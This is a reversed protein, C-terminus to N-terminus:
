TDDPKPAPGFAESFWERLEGPKVPRVNQDREPDLGPNMRRWLERWHAKCYEEVTDAELELRRGVIQYAAAYTEAERSALVEHVQHAAERTRSETGLTTDFRPPTGTMAVTRLYRVAYARAEPSLDEGGDDGALFDAAEGLLERALWSPLAEPHKRSYAM